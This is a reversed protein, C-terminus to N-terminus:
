ICFINLLLYMVYQLKFILVRENILFCLCPVCVYGRYSLLVCGFKTTLMPVYDDSIYSTILQLDHCQMPFSITLNSSTSSIPENLVYSESSKNEICLKLAIFVLLNSLKWLVKSKSINWVQWSLSFYVACTWCWSRQGVICFIM